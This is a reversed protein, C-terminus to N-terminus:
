REMNSSTAHPPFVLVSLLQPLLRLLPLLPLSHSLRTSYPSLVFSFTHTKFQWFWYCICKETRKNDELILERKRRKDSEEGDWLCAKCCHQVICELLWSVMKREPCSIYSSLQQGKIWFTRVYKRLFNSRKALVHQKGGVPHNINWQIVDELSRFWVYKLFWLCNQPCTM